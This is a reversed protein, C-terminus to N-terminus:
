IGRRDTIHENLAASIRKAMTNSTATCVAKDAMMVRLGQATYQPRLPLQVGAFRFAERWSTGVHIAAGLSLLVQGSGVLEMVLWDKGLFHRALDGAQALTFDARPM